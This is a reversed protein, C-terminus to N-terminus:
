LTVIASRYRSLDPEPEPECLLPQILRHHNLRKWRCYVMESVTASTETALPEFCYFSQKSLPNNPASKFMVTVHTALLPFAALPENSTMCSTATAPGVLSLLM